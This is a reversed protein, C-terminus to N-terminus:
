LLRRLVVETSSDRFGHDRNRCIEIVRLTLRCFIGTLDRTEVYLADHVLRRCCRKRITEVLLLVLGDGDVVETAAGEVNRNEFNALADDLHLRRVTVRVQAAVVDIM